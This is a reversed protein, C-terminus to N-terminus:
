NNQIMNFYIKGIILLLVGMVIFIFCIVNFFMSFILGFAICLVGLLYTGVRGLYGMSAM